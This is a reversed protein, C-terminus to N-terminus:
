KSLYKGTWSKREKVIDSIKGEDVIYGGKNGGEPGLDIVYDTCRIFDLNHEISVVTNGRDVLSRLVFLLKKIDDPHLGTTPEDLIYLSKGTAKKSLETALKVRQAEGGSLSPAPQGLEIYTLGVDNLTKLKAYLGPINKFFELAEEVTMELVDAINKGRYEVALTEKNFRKGKCEECEVYIDPLFYMEIKKVGQGECAECRGGKVNFSFRGATFGRIRAEKTKSFLDRIYSFAGTYTAPNSRPTRGIPSQDVLVVKDLNETGLIAKYKGPEEKARYFKKMLARALIDNMLSSKGSGSVGTICVFKGLPIKVDINKLNHEKAGKITIYEVGSTSREVEPTSKSTSKIEVKKRGSLYEGTLTHSKLLEKPTGEFIIKGGHKGAGPGVDVVWDSAKITQPDHEVVLVSNGLDRLKKLTEILRGQDRPHLGVSPEDLIYLVGTLKSGIQTALRIRQEEGGSLTTAKRDLALYDLGVDILFQLRNIIEKIILHAIKRENEKLFIKEFFIKLKDVQMEVTEDISKDAVKVALAEPKLRKGMCKECIKEVMYQEIEQRTYESDTEHYRRELAPIVGEYSSNKIKFKLNKFEPKASEGYLILNLIEKSLNKVPENLSFNYREALNTLQWWFYGQRGVKHSARAWPFIAGEAISLNLNPLVQKPDVELKEGLGQCASCAGFPSNFSFLRPELEPLSIGCEECAFHESFILDKDNQNKGAGYLVQKGEPIKSGTGSGKTRYPALKQNIMVIGKGLKLATELSDVLRSKDLDKDIILRDVVVEINHKKNRDLVKELAEEVRYIIGDIRVRVFGSRQIEEFIGHHEGKKGRIIPSLVTIETKQPLKLIQKTIQDITQRSVSKACKPCHPKGVRAFLLRIYDYIETITGVTSRPNHSAKRQDISIAPSIGEIKDVDPKDMVGLFQRAYASLSEVYRRQGEAYLTDFALSSKGSGSIGTIVVLKNKPIDVDINKLNHVRAGRIRILNSAGYSALPKGKPYVRAGRIKIYNEAMIIILLLRNYQLNEFVEVLDGSSM